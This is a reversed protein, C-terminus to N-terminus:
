AMELLNMLRLKYGRFGVILNHIDFVLQDEDSYYYFM